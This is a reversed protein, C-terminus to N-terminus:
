SVNNHTRKHLVFSLRRNSQMRNKHSDLPAIFIKHWEEACYNVAAGQEERAMETHAEGGPDSGTHEGVVGAM